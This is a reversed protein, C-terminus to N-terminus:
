LNQKPPAGPMAARLGWRVCSALLIPAHARTVEDTYATVAMKFSGSERPEVFIQKHGNIREWVTGKRWRETYSSLAAYSPFFVLVGSNSPVIRSINLILNGLEDITQLNERNKYSSNLAVGCPGKRVVAAFLQDDGIVHSNELTVQLAYTM